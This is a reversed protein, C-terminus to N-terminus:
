FTKAGCYVEKWSMRGYVKQLGEHICTHTYTFIYMHKFTLEKFKQLNGTRALVANKNEPKAVPNLGKEIAITIDM